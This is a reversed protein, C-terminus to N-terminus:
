PEDDVERAEAIVGPDVAQAILRAVMATATLQNEVNLAEWRKQAYPAPHEVPWLDLQQM